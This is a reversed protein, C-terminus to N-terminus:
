WALCIDKIAVRIIEVFHKITATLREFRFQRSNVTISVIIACNTDLSVFVPDSEALPASITDCDVVCNCANLYNRSCANNVPRRLNPM